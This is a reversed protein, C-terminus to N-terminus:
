SPSSRTNEVTISIVPGSPYETTVLSSPSITMAISNERMERCSASSITGPPMQYGSMLDVISRLCEDGPRSRPTVPRKAKMPSAPNATTIGIPVPSTKSSASELTRATLSAWCTKMHPGSVKAKTAAM